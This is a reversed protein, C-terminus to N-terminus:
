FRPRWMATGYFLFARVDDGETAEGQATFLVVSSPFFMITGGVGQQVITTPLARYEVRSNRYYTSFDLADGFLTVGPGGSSSILDLFTAHSYSASADLRLIRAIHVLRGAAFGGTMDPAGGTQTLDGIKTGGLVLSFPGLELGADVAGIARTSVSGDCVDPGPAGGPAPVTRCFWSLPLYSALWRSRDPQLMDARAGLSIPGLRTSADLGAATLEIASAGWPNNSDFSSIAVHGGFRSRGPYIAFVGSM